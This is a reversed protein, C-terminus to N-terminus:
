IAIEENVAATVTEWPPNANSRMGELLKTFEPDSHLKAFGDWGSYQGVAVVNGAEPGYAHRVVFFGAGLRQHHQKVSKLGELLEAEKGPKMRFNVVVRVTAM